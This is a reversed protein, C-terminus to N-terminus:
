PRQREAASGPARARGITAAGRERRSARHWQLTVLLSGLLQVLGYVLVATVASTGPFTAVTIELGLGVNRIATTLAVARRNEDDQGGSSWGAGLSLGLLIMMGLVGGPGVDLLRPFQSALIVVLTIANLIKGVAVSPGLWRVAQDPRWHNVALGVCLPFLQTTLIAGVLSLPDVQLGSRGTVFPLLVALLLPAVLVSSGALIVMLGVSVATNGGALATLPPGYPAGPCVALILIGAAVPPDANVALLLFVAALPVAADNVLVARAILRTDSTALVVDALRVGLGVAFMMEILTVTVLLGILQDVGM